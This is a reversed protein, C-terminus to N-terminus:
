LSLQTSFFQHKQVTTNSFVRSLGKSQLSIWGTWGLPSWDQINMPLVSASLGISQGGSTFFQSMQFSGSAPFSWLHSSSPVASSSITPHDLMFSMLRLLTQSNTIYLSAQLAATWPTAFLWVCSLSQVSSFGRLLVTLYNSSDNRVKYSFFGHVYMWLKLFKGSTMWCTLSLVPIGVWCDLELAEARVCQGASGKLPSPCLLLVMVSECTLNVKSVTNFNLQLHPLLLFFFPWNPIIEVPYILSPPSRSSKYCRFLFSPTLSQIWQCSM